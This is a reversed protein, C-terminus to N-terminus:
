AATRQTPSRARADTGTARRALDALSGPYYGWEGTNPYCTGDAACPPPTPPDILPARGMALSATGCAAILLLWRYNISEHVQRGSHMNSM